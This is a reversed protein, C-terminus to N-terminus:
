AAQQTAATAFALIKELMLNADNPIQLVDEGFIDPPCKASTDQQYLNWLYNPRKGPEGQKSGFVVITFEKEIMGEWEKGKVKVRKEGNGELQLIEYHATMFLEKPCLKVYRLLRGIEEAYMNWVDFGKKAKRCEALLLDIYASFSDVVVCNIEGNASFDKIADLVDTYKKVRREHTFKKAFPMPKDEVNVFGTRVPDMNRFSHTKGIGSPGVVLVKYVDRDM